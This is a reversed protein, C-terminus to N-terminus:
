DERASEQRLSAEIAMMLQREESIRASPARYYNLENRLRREAEEQEIQLTLPHFHQVKISNELSKRDQPSM